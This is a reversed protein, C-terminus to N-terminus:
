EKFERFIIIEINQLFLDFYRSDKLSLLSFNLCIAFSIKFNNM